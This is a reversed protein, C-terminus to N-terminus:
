QLKYLEIKGGLGAANNNVTGIALLKGDDSVALSCINNEHEIDLLDNGDQDWIRIKGNKIGFIFFENNNLFLIAELYHKEYNKLIIAKEEKYDNTNLFRVKGDEAGTILNKGDPAFKMTTIKSETKSDHIEIYNELNIVKFKEAYGFVIFQNSPSIAMCRLAGVGFCVNELCSSKHDNYYFVCSSACRATRGNICVNGGVVFFNDCAACSTLSSEEYKKTKRFETTIKDGIDSISIEDGGSVSILKNGQFCLQGAATTRGFDNFNIEAFKRWDFPFCYDVVIQSLEKPLFETLNSMAIDFCNSKQGKAESALKAGTQSSYSTFVFLNTLLIVLVFKKYFFNM